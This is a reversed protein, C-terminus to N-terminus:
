RASANPVIDAAGMLWEVASQCFCEDIRASVQDHAAMGMHYLSCLDGALVEDGIAQAVEEEILVRL